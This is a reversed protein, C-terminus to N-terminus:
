NCARCLGHEARAHGGGQRASLSSARRHAPPTFRREVLWAAVQAQTFKGAHFCLGLLEAEAGALGFVAAVGEDLLDDKRLLRDFRGANVLVVLYEDAWVIPALDLPSTSTAVM